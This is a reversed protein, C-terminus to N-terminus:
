FSIKNWFGNNGVKYFPHQQASGSEFHTEVAIVIQVMWSFISKGDITLANSESIYSGLSLKFHAFFLKSYRARPFVCSIPFFVCSIYSKMSKREDAKWLLAPFSMPSSNRRFTPLPLYLIVLIKELKSKSMKLVSVSGRVERKSTWIICYACVISMWTSTACKQLYDTSAVRENLNWIWGALLRLSVTNVILRSAEKM